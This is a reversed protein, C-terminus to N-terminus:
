LQYNSYCSFKWYYYYYGTVKIYPVSDSVSYNNNNNNNNDFLCIPKFFPTEDLVEQRLFNYENNNNNNNNYSLKRTRIFGMMYHKLINETILIFM